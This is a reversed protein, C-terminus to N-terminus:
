KETRWSPHPLELPVSLVVVTGDGPRSDIQMNGGIHTLREVISFLGFSSTASPLPIENIDFGLGADSVSVVLSGNQSAVAVDASGVNAHKSVNILLERTARFLTYLMQSNLVLHQDDHRLKVRLGHARQMEEALWELAPILGFQHLAPPSLQMSLSRAEVNASDLLADIDKIAHQLGNRGDCSHCPADLTSLKLKAVALTQSLGDHLDQAIAQREREEVTSLEIAMARLQATRERVKEELSDSCAKHAQAVSLAVSKLENIDIFTVIAGDACDNDACSTAVRRVYHHGTESQFEQSTPAAGSIVAQVEFALDLVAIAPSFSNLPRGIDARTLPLLNNISPSYWQICLARDVGLTMIDSGGLLSGHDRNAQELEDLRYRHQRNGAVSEEDPIGM